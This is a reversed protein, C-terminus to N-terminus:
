KRERIYKLVDRINEGEPYPLRGPWDIKVEAPRESLQYSTSDFTMWEKSQWLQEKNPLGYSHGFRLNRVVYGTDGSILFTHREPSQNYSYQHVFSYRAVPASDRAQSNFLEFSGIVYGGTVNQITDARPISETTMQWKFDPLRPGLIQKPYTFHVDKYSIGNWNPEVFETTITVWNCKPVPKTSLDWDVTLTERSPDETIVPPGNSEWNIETEYSLITVDTGVRYHLDTASQDSSQHIQYSGVVKQTQWNDSPDDTPCLTVIHKIYPHNSSYSLYWGNGENAGGPNPNTYVDYDYQSVNGGDDRDSDVLRISDPNSSLASRTRVNDGWATIAHGGDGVQSGAVPWSIYLGVMQCRRLENAITRAGNPEAWPYKPSKHGYVTVVKYPNGPTTNNGSGLWWSIAADAWGGDAVGTPNTPSTQWAIMDQYIDNTRAQVTAGTGYGAGALMNSATAMWCSNDLPIPWTKDADPPPNMKMYPPCYSHTTVLLIVVYCLLRALRPILNSKRM